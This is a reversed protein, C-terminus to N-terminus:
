FYKKSYSQFNTGLKFSLIDELITELQKTYESVKQPDRLGEHVIDARIGYVRGIVININEENISPYIKILEKKVKKVLKNGKGEVLIELSIWLKIFRDITDSEKKGLVWWHMSRKLVEQSEEKISLMYNEVKEIDFLQKSTICSNNNITLVCPIDVQAHTMNVGKEKITVKHIDLSIKGVFFSLINVSDSCKNKALLRADDIDDAKVETEVSFEHVNSRQSFKCGLLKIKNDKPWQSDLSGLMTCIYIPILIGGIIM